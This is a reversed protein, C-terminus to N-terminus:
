SGKRQGKSQIMHRRKLEAWERPSADLVNFDRVRYTEAISVLLYREENQVPLRADAEIVDGKDTTPFLLRRKTGIKM